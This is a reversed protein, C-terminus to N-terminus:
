KREIHKNALSKDQRKSDLFTITRRRRQFLYIYIKLDSLRRMADSKQDPKSNEDIDERGRM